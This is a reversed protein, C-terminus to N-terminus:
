FEYGEIADAYYSWYQASKYAEVSEMPVYIKRGDGNNGFTFSNVLVPPTTAKCYVSTLSSCGAFAYDGIATVSDPITISTLSDCSYFAYDGIEVLGNGLIVNELDLYAFAGNGIKTVNNGINVITFNSGKLFSNNGNTHDFDNGIINSDITIEGSVGLFVNNGIYSVGTGIKISSLKSCKGFALDYISIVNNPIEVSEIVSNSFTRSKIESVDDPIIVNKLLEDNLYIYTPTTFLPALSSMLNSNLFESLTNNYLYLSLTNSNSSCNSFSNPGFACNSLNTKIIITELNDEGNFADDGIKIVREGLTIKKLNVCVNCCSKPIELDFSKPDFTIEEIKSREFAGESLTYKVLEDFEVMKIDSNAFIFRGINLKSNEENNPYGKIILKNIKSGDKWDNDYVVRYPYNLISRTYNTELFPSQLVLEDLTCGMFANSGITTVSSPIIIKKLGTQREFASLPLSIIDKASILIGKKTNFDYKNAILPYFKTTLKEVAEYYIKRNEPIKSLDM